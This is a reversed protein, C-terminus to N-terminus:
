GKVKQQEEFRKLFKNIEILVLFFLVVVILSAAFSFTKSNLLGSIRAGKNPFSSIINIVEAKQAKDQNLRIMDNKLKDIERLLAIDRNESDVKQALNISTGLNEKQAEALMIKRYFLQLSDIESFKKKYIDEQLRLITDNIGKQLRFYENTIIKEVISNEIKKVLFPNTTRITITHFRASLSNFNKLYDKYNITKRVSTDLKKIFNNFLEVKQNEDSFSEVKFKLIQSAEKITIEKFLSQLGLSDKSKALEHYFEINNYLQQASNFNPEVIM